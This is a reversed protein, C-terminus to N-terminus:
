PCTARHASTDPQLPTERTRSHEHQNDQRAESKLVLLPLLGSPGRGIERCSGVKLKPLAKEDIDLVSSTVTLKPILVSFPLKPEAAGLTQREVVLIRETVLVATGNKRLQRLNENQAM